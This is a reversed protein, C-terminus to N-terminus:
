SVFALTQAFCKRLPDHPLGSGLRVRDSMRQGSKTSAITCAGRRSRGSAELKLASVIPGLDYRESHLLAKWLDGRARLRERMNDLRFQEITLGSDVENWSVPASVTALPTPRVSYVAALTRGWANQNYDVLVRRSPRKAIRYEATILRPYRAALDLAVAKAVGWVEKQLPGRQIPVYIHLGRSGTTKPYSPMRFTDLLSKVNLAAECIQSFDAGPV